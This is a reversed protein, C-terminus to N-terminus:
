CPRFSNSNAFVDTTSGSDDKLKEQATSAIERFTDLSENALQEFDKNEM